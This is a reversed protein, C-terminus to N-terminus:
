VFITLFLLQIVVVCDGRVGRERVYNTVRNLVIRLEIQADGVLEAEIDPNLVEIVVHIVPHHRLQAEDPDTGVMSASWRVGHRHLGIVVQREAAVNVGDAVARHPRRRRDEDFFIVCLVANVVDVAVAARAVDDAGVDKLVTRGDAGVERLDVHRARDLLNETQRGHVLEIEGSRRHSRDEGVRRGLIVELRPRM